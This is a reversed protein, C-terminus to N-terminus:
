VVTHGTVSVSPLPPLVLAVDVGTSGAGGVYVGIVV